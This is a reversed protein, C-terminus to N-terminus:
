IKTDPTVMGEASVGALPDKKSIVLTEAQQSFCESGNGGVPEDGLDTVAGGGDAPSEDRVDIETKIPDSAHSKGDPKCSVGDPKRSAVVVEPAAPDGDGDREEGERATDKSESCASADGKKPKQDREIGAEGLGGEYAGYQNHLPDDSSNAAPHEPTGDAERAVGDSTTTDPDNTRMPKASDNPHETDDGVLQEGGTAARREAEAKSRLEKRLEELRSDLRRYEDHYRRYEADYKEFESIAADLEKEQEDLKELKQQDRDNESKRREINEIIGKRKSKGQEVSNKLKEVKEALIGHKREMSLLRTDIESIKDNLEYAHIMQDFSPLLPGIGERDVIGAVSVDDASGSESLESLHNELFEDLDDGTGLEVLSGALRRYFCHTGEMDVFSDEIGDSGMFVAVLPDVSLDIVWTRMKVAADGDCMSTTFVDFCRDDWPVPQDVAGNKHFVDCRGDGQHVFLAKGDCILCAILTTGYARNLGIGWRYEDGVADGADDMERESLPNEELDEKVREHWLSVIRKCLNRMTFGGTTANVLDGFGADEFGGGELAVHALEKLADNASDVAFRSGQKSRVCTQDGHGDAITAIQFRGSSDDDPYSGSHDQCPIDHRTHSAGRVTHNFVELM